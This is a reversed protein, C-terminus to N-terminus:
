LKEGFLHETRRFFWYGVACILMSTVLTRLLFAPDMGVAGQSGITGWLVTRFGDVISALPNLWRILTASNITIGGLVVDASFRDLSYFIPTLFFLGRLVVQLIMAVDRAFVYLASLGLSLGWILLMECFILVPVWLAFWSLGLGSVFLFFFLVTLSFLFNIFNSLLAATPLLERPFYVKKVLPTNSVISVAGSMVGGQFFNWPLIGTLIFIPYERLSQNMFRDFVLWFIGMMLLPNLLSWIIGLVSEKYRVKLDREVLTRLMYRYQILEQWRSPQVPAITTPKESTIM